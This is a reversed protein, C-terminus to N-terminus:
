GVKLFADDACELGGPLCEFFPLGTGGWEDMLGEHCEQRVKGRKCWVIFPDQKGRAADGPDLCMGQSGSSMEYGELVLGVMM